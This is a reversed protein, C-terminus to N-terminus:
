AEALSKLRALIKKVTAASGAAALPGILRGVIGFALEGQETFTFRSGSPIAELTWRESYDKMLNGSTMRFAFVENEVWETVACTLNLTGAPTEEKFRFPAGLGGKQEGTYEFEQLPLYWQLIKQPEALFPWVEEPPAGIEVSQQVRM